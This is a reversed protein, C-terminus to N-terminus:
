AAAQERATAGALAGYLAAALIMYDRRALGVASTGALMARRTKAELVFDFGVMGSLGLKGVIYSATQTMARHDLRRVVPRVGAERPQQLTEISVGALVRGNRCMVARQARSGPIYQQIAVARRRPPSLVLRAAAGEFWQRLPNAPLTLRRYAALGAEVDRVIVANAGDSLTVPLPVSGLLVRLAAEDGIGVAHAMPLAHRRCFRSLLAKDALLAHHAPDGFSDAMLREIAASGRAHKGPLARLRAIATLDASLIMDPAQDGLVREVMQGLRPGTGHLSILDFGVERLAAPFEDEPRFPTTAVILLCPRAFSM